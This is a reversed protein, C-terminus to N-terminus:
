RPFGHGKDTRTRALQRARDMQDSMKQAREVDRERTATQYQLAMTPTTHGLMAQIERVSAGAAAALTAATARLDHDKLQGRGISEAAKKHLRRLVDDNLPKGLADGFLLAEPIM